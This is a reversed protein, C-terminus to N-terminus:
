GAAKSGEALEVTRDTSGCDGLTVEDVVEVVAEPVRGILRQENM